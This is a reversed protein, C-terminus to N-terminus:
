ETCYKKQADLVMKSKDGLYIGKNLDECIKKLSEEPIKENKSAFVQVEKSKSLTRANGFEYKRIITFARNAYANTYLPEIELTKDFDKTAEEFQFNNLYMTGRAFYGDVWNPDIEIIKNLIKIAKELEGQSYLDQSENYLKFIKENVKDNQYIGNSYSTKGKLAGTSYYSYSDGDMKGNQNFFTKQKLQGNQHYMKWEDVEKGYVFSGQQNLTGNEYYRKEIGHPIGNDYEIENSITGSPYYLVRKGKLKGNFLTGEGEKKGSFYYDIFKGSYAENSNKLYWIGNKKTMIKTSPIAKISDPRKTYEKTIVYIIGDFDKYGANSIAVKDKIVNVSEIEEPSIESFGEKPEEIVPISDVIYLVREDKTQSFGNFVIIILFLFLLTKKM